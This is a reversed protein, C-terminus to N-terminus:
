IFKIFAHTRDIFRLINIVLNNNKLHYHGDSRAQREEVVGGREGVQGEELCM